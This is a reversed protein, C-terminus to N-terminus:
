WFIERPQKSVNKKERPKLLMWLKTIGEYAHGTKLVQHSFGSISNNNHMAQIHEKYRTYIGRM